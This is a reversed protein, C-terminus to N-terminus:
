RSELISAANVLMKAADSRTLTDGYSIDSSFDFVRCASLNAVAQSAWVPYADDDMSAVGSVDTVNLANNLMVSAEAYTIPSDPSFVIHGDDSTTGKIIGNIVGASVYSKEWTPIDEDDYFGTVTINSSSDINCLEMCMALFEGRTVTADPSFIYENSVKEGVFIDNEALYLAAYQASSDTMDSYTVSSNKKKINITVTAENSKNGNSDTAVYSFCDSGKKGDKPTYTFTNGNVVVDGKKGTKTISFTMEDNEPDIANFSCTIPVGRYTDFELNEAVPSSNVSMVVTTIYASADASPAGIPLLMLAAMLICIALKTKSQVIVVETFIYLIYNNNAIRFFNNMFELISYIKLFHHNTLV